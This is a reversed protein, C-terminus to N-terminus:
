LIRFEGFGEYQRPQYPKLFRLLILAQWDAIEFGDRELFITKSHGYEKFDRRETWRKILRAEM